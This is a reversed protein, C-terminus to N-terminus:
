IQIMGFLFIFILIVAHLSEGKFAKCYVLLSDQMVTKVGIMRLRKATGALHPHDLTGALHERTLESVVVFGIARIHYGCRYEKGRCFIESGFVSGNDLVAASSLVCFM